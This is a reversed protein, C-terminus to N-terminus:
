TGICLICPLFLHLSSFFSRKVVAVLLEIERLISLKIKLDVRLLQKGKVLGINNFCCLGEGPHVVAAMLLKQPLLNDEM